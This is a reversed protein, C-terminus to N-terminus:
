LINHEEETSAFVATIELNNEKLKPQAAEEANDCLQVARSRGSVTWVDQNSLDVSTWETTVTLPVILTPAKDSRRSMNCIIEDLFEKVWTAQVM